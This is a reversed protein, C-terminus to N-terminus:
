SQSTTEQGSIKSKGAPAIDPRWICLTPQCDPVAIPRADTSCFQQLSLLGPQQTGGSIRGDAKKVSPTSSRAPQSERAQDAARPTTTPNLILHKNAVVAVFLELPLQGGGM